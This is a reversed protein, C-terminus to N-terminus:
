PDILPRQKDIGVLRFAETGDPYYIVRYISGLYGKEPMGPIVLVDAPRTILLLKEYKDLLPKVAGFHFKGLNWGSLPLPQLHHYLSPDFRTYFRVFLDPYPISNGFVVCAYSSKDATGIADALGYDWAPATLRPYANLYRAMFLGASVLAAAVFTIKVIKSFNEKFLGIFYVIGLANVLALVPAGIISRLAHSSQTFAAPIPYLVLLALLLRSSSLRKNKWLYWGGAVLPLAEFWYLKGMGPLGCRLNADGHLFLFSPSFYSFYNQIVTLPQLILTARARAMGEPTWWFSAMLILGTSFLATSLALEPRPIKLIEPLYIWCWAVLFLPTFVRASSYTCLTLIFIVSGYKLLRPHKLAYQLLLFAYLFFCPFLIARFATRSFHVHWSSIALLFVSWFAVRHGYLLRALFFLPVLTLTGCVAAPLRVSFDNLGFLWVSPIAMYRYLAENYDGLSKAFAPLFNGYQDKGTHLLSFADYGTSVEDGCLGAPINGLFIFRLCFALLLVFLLSLANKYQQWYRDAHHFVHIGTM